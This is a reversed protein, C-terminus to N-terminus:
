TYNCSLGSALITAPGQVVEALFDHCFDIYMEASYNRNPRDSLGFGLLDPDYVHYKQALAGMVKRIDYASASIASANLILLPPAKEDGLTKYFIHGQKWRYIHSEGPLISELPQPTNLSHLLAIITAAVLTCLASLGLLELIKLPRQLIKRMIKRRTPQLIAHNSFHVGYTICVVTHWISDKKPLATQFFFSHLSRNTKVPTGATESRKRQIYTHIYTINYIYYLFLKVPLVIRIM